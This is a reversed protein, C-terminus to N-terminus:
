SCAMEYMGSSSGDISFWHLTQRSAKWRSQVRPQSLRARGFGKVAARRATSACSSSTLDIGRERLYATIAETQVLGLDIGARYIHIGSFMPTRGAPTLVSFKYYLIRRRQEPIMRSALDELQAQKKQVVPKPM